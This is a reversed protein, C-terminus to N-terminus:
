FHNKKKNEERSELVFVFTRRLFTGFMPGFIFCVINNHRHFFSHFNPFSFFWLNEFHDPKAIQKRKKARVDM